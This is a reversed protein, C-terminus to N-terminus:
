SATKVPRRVPRGPRAQTVLEGGSIVAEGNVLVHRMGEAARNMAKFEARDTLTDYDFVVIDADCGVQLRGKKRMVPTSEELIRAPILTCKALGDILSLARRERVWQRLFRTFTGSSRPHSSADAPLPWADGEYFSGDALSWPMADSAIAGGPFLISVDLLDRHRQNAEIDLFHWLVLSGPDQAQAQLIEDRNSFSRGTDVMEIAGYGSGTREVFAPDAFFAAGLVTSGTGYPYAEVTVKLGQDQAKKVLRAAREVDQLSTSNFHCIHMHAGTSGAYGILRTYAEISSRPDVNSAYAVHTYTPVAHAAALSAVESLEKVGAGPAYANLIGIGIGGEDLGQTLRAVIEAIEKDTAVNDVWRKDHSNRSMFGLEPEPDAGIMAAIRAFVWNAATGYNLVRRKRAQDDYWRAVPLVGAELELSTTVGDFAQMRDAAISQGHAHLDIFGPAVVLGSADIARATEAAITGIAAIRGGSLAVDGTMDLGTEPDVLRGGRIVLDYPGPQNAQASPLTTENM